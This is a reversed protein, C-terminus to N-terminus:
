YLIGCLVSKHLVCSIFINEGIIGVSSSYGEQIVGATVFVM